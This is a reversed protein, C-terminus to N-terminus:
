SEQSEALRRSWDELVSRLTEEMPIRPEWGTEETIKTHDGRLEPVDVPRVREPDVRIEVDAGAIACM